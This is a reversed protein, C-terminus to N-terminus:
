RYYENEIFYFTVGELETSFIKCPQNRWALAVVFAAKEEMAERYKAPIDAYLPLIVRVDLDKTKALAKPLSGIVDGLGGTAIFPLAESAAFLLKKKSVEEVKKVM